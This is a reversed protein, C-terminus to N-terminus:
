EDSGLVDITIIGRIIDPVNISDDARSACWAANKACRSAEADFWTVPCISASVAYAASLITKYASLIRHNISRNIKYCGLRAANTAVILMKINEGTADELCRQEADIILRYDDIEDWKHARDAFLKKDIKAGEPRIIHRLSASQSVTQACTLACQALLKTDIKKTEAYWLMWAADPCEAWATALDRDGVWDIIKQCAGMAILENKLTMTEGKRSMEEAEKVKM